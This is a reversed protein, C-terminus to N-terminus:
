DEFKFFDVRVFDPVTHVEQDSFPLTIRFGPNQVTYLNGLELRYAGLLYNIGIDPDYAGLECMFQNVFGSTDKLVAVDIQRRNSGFCVVLDGAEPDIDPNPPYVYRQLALNGGDPCNEPQDASRYFAETQEGDEFFDYALLGGTDSITLSIAPAGLAKSLQAAGPITSTRSVTSFNLAEWFFISWDHETLQYAFGFLNPIEIEADLVDRQTTLASASISHTLQDIPSRVLTITTNRDSYEVGRRESWPRSFHTAVEQQYAEIDVGRSRLYGEPDRLYEGPNSLLAARDLNRLQESVSGEQSELCENRVHSFEDDNRSCSMALPILLIMWWLKRTM